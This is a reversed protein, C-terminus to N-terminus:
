GVANFDKCLLNMSKLLKHIYVYPGVAIFLGLLNWGWFSGAGFSYSIGRRKLEAGIRASIRHYWVLSGIGMTVWSVLFFLLCYHMTKKGDYRGAIINIDESIASMVIIGYIGFTVFNLLVFKLLGRDTKLQVARGVGTTAPAEATRKDIIPAVEEDWAGAFHCILLLLGGGVLTAVALGVIVGLLTLGTLDGILMGAGFGAAAGILDAFLYGIVHLKSGTKDEAKQYVKEM